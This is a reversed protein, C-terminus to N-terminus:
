KVLVGNIYVGEMILNSAYKIFNGKEIGSFYCNEIHVGTVPSREYADIFIARESKKSKVNSIYINKVVPTFTGIDGENYYFDIHIIAQKVIGVSIKRMYVNEIIGGRLSNTKIRLVRDLNPSDMTCNEVFVNRCNGSIESGIVVGGHGDKMTCGQIIINESPVNIRRGDANRGSKIAICDDGTEFFCDKILVNSSSEPNCGDNNPGQSDIKVKRITVNKCLVPHIVWMPSNIIKIGEVLVNECNYFQIFNPRLHHGKGFIRKAVPTNNEAMQYLSDIDTNKSTMTKGKWSGKWQWWNVSDAQGDIIGKGTIAINKQKYAYILPSYNYCEVGEFRTYVAPLYDDPNNSFQLIANEEILLNVNSKLNIAGTLYRGSPIVVTGGGSASCSEIAKNIAKTCITKGDDNAGFETIIFKKDQFIPVQICQLVSPINQWAKNGQSQDSTILNCAVFLNVLFIFVIRKFRVLSM